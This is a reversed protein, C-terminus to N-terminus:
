AERRLELGAHSFLDPAAAPGLCAPSFWVTDRAFNARARSGAGSKNGYGAGGARRLGTVPQWGPLQEATYYGALAIRLGPEHQHAVAWALAAAAVEDGNDHAYLRAEREGTAAYPPDLFVGVARYRHSAGRVAPGVVRAWDGCGVRVRRLRDSLRQMVATLHATWAAAHGQGANGLHPRKRNVGQGASRLHPRKRNVGQGRDAATRGDILVGDVARWPGEGSCWDSGIWACVGWVWWGAARADYWAPDGMLRATIAEREGVLWAHRATLDVENVPWDAHRAVAAPDAQIARWVNALLGDSDNVTEIRDWWAHADPRGLLVAGSGFFPEIYHTVDGLRAWVTAAYHAKGGFYPFPARLETLGTM